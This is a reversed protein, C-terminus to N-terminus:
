KYSIFGHLESFEAVLFNCGNYVKYIKNNDGEVDIHDGEYSWEDFWEFFDNATTINDTSKM